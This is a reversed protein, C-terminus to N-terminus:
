SCYPLAGAAAPAEETGTEAGRETEWTAAAAAAELAVAAGQLTGPSAGRSGTGAVAAVTPVSPRHQLSICVYM